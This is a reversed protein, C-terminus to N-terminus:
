PFSFYMIAADDGVGTRTSENKLVIDRTLRDILGFEGLRSIETEKEEM